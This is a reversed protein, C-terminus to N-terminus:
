ICSVSMIVRLAGLRFLYNYYLILYNYTMQLEMKFFHAIEELFYSIGLYSFHITDFTLFVSM